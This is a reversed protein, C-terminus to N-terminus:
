FEWGPQFIVGDEGTYLPEHDCRFLLEMPLYFPDSREAAINFDFGLTAAKKQVKAFCPQCRPSFGTWKVPILEFKDLQRKEERTLLRKRRLYEEQTEYLYGDFACPRGFRMGKDRLDPQPEYEVKKGKADEYSDAGLKQRPEAEFKWWMYPRTGPWRSIHESLLELRLSQWLARQSDEDNRHCFETFYFRGTALALLDFYGFHETTNRPSRWPIGARVNMQLVMTIRDSSRKRTIKRKRPM